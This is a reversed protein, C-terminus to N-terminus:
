ACVGVLDVFDRNFYAVNTSANLIMRIAQKM